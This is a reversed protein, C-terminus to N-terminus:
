VVTWRVGPLHRQRGWSEHSPSGRWWPPRNPDDRVRRHGRGDLRCRVCDGAFTQKKWAHNTKWITTIHACSIVATTSLGVATVLVFLRLSPASLAAIFHRVPGAGRHWVAGRFRAS